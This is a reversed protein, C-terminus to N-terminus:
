LWLVPLGPGYLGRRVSFKRLRAFKGSRKKRVTDGDTSAARRVSRYADGAIIAKILKCFTEM